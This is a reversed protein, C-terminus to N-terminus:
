KQPTAPPTEEVKSHGSGGITNLHIGRVRQGFQMKIVMVIFCDRPQETKCGGKLSTGFFLRKKGGIQPSANTIIVVGKLM